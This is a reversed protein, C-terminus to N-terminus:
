AIHTGRPQPVTSGDDGLDIQKYFNDIQTIASCNRQISSGSLPAALLRDARPQPHRLDGSLLPLNVRYIM